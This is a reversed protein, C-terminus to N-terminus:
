HDTSRVLYQEPSWIPAHLFYTSFLPAYLTKLPFGSPLFSSPLRLRVHSPLILGSRWSTPHPAHVTNIQSLIPVPPPCKHIHHRFKPNWLIRSIEQTVSLKELLFRGRPTLLYYTGHLPKPFLLLTYCLRVDRLYTAKESNPVWWHFSSFM